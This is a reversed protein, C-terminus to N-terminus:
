RHTALLDQQYNKKPQQPQSKSQQENTVNAEVDLTDTIDEISLKKNLPMSSTIRGEKEELTHGTSLFFVGV